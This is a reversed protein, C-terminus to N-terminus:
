GILTSIIAFDRSPRKTAICGESWQAPHLANRSDALRLWTSSTDRVMLGRCLPQNIARQHFTPGYGTMTRAGGVRVGCETNLSGWLDVMSILAPSAASSAGAFFPRLLLFSLLLSSLLFRLHMELAQTGHLFRLDFTRLAL